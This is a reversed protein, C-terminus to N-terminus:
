VVDGRRFRLLALGWALCGLTAPWIVGIAFLAGQGLRNAMYFGVPGLWSLEPDAAALLAMRAAQVPNFAALTIITQHNVHSQLILGVLAFDLLAVALAWILLLYIVAKAQSRVMTSVALGLGVFAWLLAASVLLARGVFGWEIPQEFAIRGYLALGVVLLGLPVLLTLFRTLSVAVFYSARPIPQAFLLELLGDDRAQNIVQGTATLALLPLLLVLAHCFNLLVRSMGTFQMVSSEKMAVFVFLAAMIAYVVVAFLLWRSRMVEAFDLRAVARIGKM